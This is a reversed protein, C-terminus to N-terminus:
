HFLTERDTQSHPVGGGLRDLFAPFDRNIDEPTSAAPGYFRGLMQEAIVHRTWGPVTASLNVDRWKPHRPPVLFQDWQSFLREAFREIRRYRDSGRPWNFVSLVAPVAITDIKEGEAILSPYDKA